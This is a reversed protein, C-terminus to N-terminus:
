GGFGPCRRSRLVSVLACASTAILVTLRRASPLSMRPTNSSPANSGQVRLLGGLSARLGTKPMSAPKAIQGTPRM